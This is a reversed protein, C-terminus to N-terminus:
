ESVIKAAYRIVDTGNHNTLISFEDGNLVNPQNIADNPYIAVYHNGFEKGNQMVNVPDSWHLMNKSTRVEMKKNIGYTGLGPTVGTYSMIYLGYKQSYVVRPHWGGSVIPTEKGLNGAERFEGNYYKVFDGMVGDTRKRTRAVYVDLNKWVGSKSDVRALNYFLYMYEGDPEVFLSFDGAGLCTLGEKQGLVNIEDPNYLESFCVEESTIVWRDFTWNRGEDDSHMLGIHRFDPEGEGKGTVKYGTGQGNWGTENHFFCFFRRTNPCIYLGFPWISGRAKVGEPYRVGSFAHDSSGVRFNTSIPYTKKMDDLCTGSFMAIHGAHSHGCMAWLKGSTDRYMPVTGDPSVGNKKLFATKSKEGIVINHKDFFKGPQEQDIGAKSEQELDSQKAPEEAVCLMAAGLMIWVVGVAKMMKMQRRRKPAGSFKAPQLILLKSKLAAQSRAMTAIIWISKIIDHKKM